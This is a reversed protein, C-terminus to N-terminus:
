RTSTLVRWVLSVSGHGHQGQKRCQQVHQLVFNGDGIKEWLTPFIFNDLIDTYASANVDWFPSETWRSMTNEIPSVDEETRSVHIISCAGLCKLGPERTEETMLVHERHRLMDSEDFVKKIELTYSRPWIFSSIFIVLVLNKFKASLTWNHLKASNVRCDWVLYQMHVMLM